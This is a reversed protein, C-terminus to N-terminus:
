TGCTALTVKGRRGSNTAIRSRLKAHSTIKFSDGFLKKAEKSSTRGTPDSTVGGRREETPNSPVFLLKSTAFTAIKRGKARKKPWIGYIASRGSKRCFFPFPPNLKSHSQVTGQM